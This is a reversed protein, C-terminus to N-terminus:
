NQNLNQSNLTIKFCVSDHINRISFSLDHQELIIKVLYLGLGSGGTLRNHSKEVRYFPTFLKDLDEEPINVGSNIVSLCQSSLDINIEGGTPSHRIANSIINHVAKQLLQENGMLMVDASIKKQIQINKDKALPALCQCVCKLIDTLSLLEMHHIPNMEQKSIALIEKVLQEMREIEKLTEPLVERTDKYRGIGLIMSEVQGKIITIPTKLEHSATAFFYQHQKNLEDIREMDQKLQENAAELEHMSESLNKSMTNLSHALIGIEDTRNIRCEWTMDLKAMRRSVESIETVPKVIIRSCIWAVLLSILLILILVFPLLKLLAGILEQNSSTLSVITFLYSQPRDSFMMEQSLSSIKDTNTKMKDADGYQHVTGNEEFSVLMQNKKCFDELVTEVDEFKTKALVKSLKEIESEMRASLIMEYSKPLFLMISGYIVLCCVVLAGFIWLFVKINLSDKLKVKLNIDWGEYQKFVTLM